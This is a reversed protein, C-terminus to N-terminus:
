TYINLHRQYLLNIRTLNNELNYTNKIKAFLKEKMAEVNYEKNIFKKIVNALDAYDNTKFLLGTIHNDIVERNGYTESAIVPLKFFGAEILTIPLGEWRSPLIFADCARMIKYPQPIKGLFIILESIEYLKVLKKIKNLEPGDGVFIFKFTKETQSEKLIKIARVLIDYGKQFEFRAVSLFLLIKDPLGYEKRHDINLRTTYKKLKSFDKFNPIYTAQKINYSQKMYELDEKSVCIVEDISKFLYYELYCRLIKYFKSKVGKLFDYKHIHMGHATFLIPISYSRLPNKFFQLLPKLHHIHILDIEQKLIYNPYYGKNYTHVNKLKSFINQADGGQAFIDFQFNKLGRAIEYIHDLGGGINFSDTILAIKPVWKSKM